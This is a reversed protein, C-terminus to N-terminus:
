RVTQVRGACELKKENFNPENWDLDMFVVVVSPLERLHKAM